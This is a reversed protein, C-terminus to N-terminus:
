FFFSFSYIIIIIIICIIIIILIVFIQFYWFDVGDFLHLYFFFLQTDLFFLFVKYCFDESLSLYM